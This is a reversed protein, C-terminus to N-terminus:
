SKRRQLYPVMAFLQSLILRGGPVTVVVALYTVAFISGLLLVQMLPHLANIGDLRAAPYSLAVAALSAAVPISISGFFDMPRLPTDKFALLLSPYLIAYNVVAYSAAIGVVGWRIGVLFGICVCVANVIGWQLYRRSRGSSLLVNGRLSAVPQIFGTVALLAFIRSVESWGPGLLLNIVPESAVFLFATVPMSALALLLSTRRYYSRYAAPNAKLRSMAPFAVANIPERIADIPFMLLHYARSYFGLSEAGLLRGILINDLNRAFYNVLNFATVNAGFTVMKRIGAGKVPAVPRFPSLVFTLVTGALTGVLSGWVLSWYSHGKLALVVATALTVLAGAIRAIAQRGFLMERVLTASPQAGFSAILFSLSLVITVDSLEPKGFLWVVLPSLAAVLVTLFGGMAVNLWFLNSQQTRNIGDSQIVATSLGLDQFLAAFGTVALVMALIGFDEPTLLRALVATSALQIVISLGKTALTVSGGRISRRKLDSLDTAEVGATMRDTSRGQEPLENSM